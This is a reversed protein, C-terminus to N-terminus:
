IMIRPFRHQPHGYYDIIDDEQRIITEIMIAANRKVVTQEERDVAGILDLLRESIRDHDGDQNLCAHRRLPDTFQKPLELESCRREFALVFDHQTEEFLFLVAKFSLSHQKALVGLTACISFTTPLPQLLDLKEVDLGVSELAAALFADHGLESALFQELIKREGQNTAGALAPAILGPASRVLCYYELVYGILQRQSATSRMLMGYFRSKGLRQKLRNCIRYVERYLQRGSIVDSIQALETETIMRLRDLEKVIDEVHDAIEAFQEGLEPITRGGRHLQDVLAIITERAEAPFSLNCVRSRYEIAVGDSSFVSDAGDRLRPRHIGTTFSM